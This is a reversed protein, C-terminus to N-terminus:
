EEKIIADFGNTKLQKVMTEANEKVSYAGVQVRYKISQQPTVPPSIIENIGMASFVAKVGISPNAVIKPVDTNGPADVFGWEIIYARMKTNNLFGLNTRGKAGRDKIGYANAISASIKSALEQNAKNGDYYLVEVGTGGGANFHNQIAIDVKNNNAINVPENINQPYGKEVTLDIIEQNRQRGESIMLNNIMRNLASETNNGSVAGPDNGGHGAGLGIKM